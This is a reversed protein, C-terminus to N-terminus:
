LLLKEERKSKRIKEHYLCLKICIITVLLEPFLPSTLEIAISSNYNQACFTFQLIESVSFFLIIPRRHVLSPDPIVYHRGEWTQGCLIRTVPSQGQHRASSRTVSTKQWVPYTDCVPCMCFTNPFFVIKPIM